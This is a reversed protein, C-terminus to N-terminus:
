QGEIEQQLQSRLLGKSALPVSLSICVQWSQKVQERKFTWYFSLRQTQREVFDLALGPFALKHHAWPWLPNPNKLRNWPPACTASMTYFKCKHEMLQQCIRRVGESGRGRGGGPIVPSICAWVPVRCFCWAALWNATLTYLSRSLLHLLRAVSCSFLFLSPSTGLNECAPWNAPPM